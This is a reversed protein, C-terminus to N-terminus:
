PYNEKMDIDLDSKFRTPELKARSQRYGEHWTSTGSLVGIM